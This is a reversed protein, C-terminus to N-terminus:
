CLESAQLSQLRHPQEIVLKVALVLGLRAKTVAPQDTFVRSGQYFKAFSEAIASGTPTTWSRAARELMLILSKQPMFLGPESEFGADFAQKSKKYQLKCEQWEPESLFPLLEIENILDFSPETACKLISCCLEYCNASASDSWTGPHVGNTEAFCSHIDLLVSSLFGGTLSFNIFGPPSVNITCDELSKRETMLAAIKQAWEVALLEQGQALRVAVGCSFDGYQPRRCLEVTVASASQELSLAQLQLEKKEFFLVLAEEVQAKLQEVIAVLQQDKWQDNVAVFLLM